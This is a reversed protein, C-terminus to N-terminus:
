QKLKYITNQIRQLNLNKNTITESHGLFLISNPYMFNTIKKLIDYKTFDDFYILVNRLFIIDFKNSFHFNSTLNLKEFNIFRRIEPVVKYLDHNTKSIMFYKKIYKLPVNKIKDINYIASKAVNLVKESIDTALINFTFNHNEQLETLTIAISYPEEGTSSAACWISFHKIKKCFNSVYASLYDFHYPERFFDTTNTTIADIIANHYNENLKHSIFDSILENTDKYNLTKAVKQLRGEVLFRKEPTLNIGCHAKIYNCFINFNTDKIKYFDNTM